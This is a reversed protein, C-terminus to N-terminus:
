HIRHRNYIYTHIKLLPNGLKGNKKPRVNNSVTQVMYLTGLSILLVCWFTQLDTCKLTAGSLM